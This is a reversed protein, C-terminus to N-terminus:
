HVSQSATIFAMVGDPMMKIWDVIPQDVENRLLAHLGKKLRAHRKLYMDKDRRTALKDWETTGFETLWDNTRALQLLRDLSLAAHGAACPSTNPDSAM